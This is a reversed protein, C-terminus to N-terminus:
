DNVQEPYGYKACLAKRAAHMKSLLDEQGALSQITQHGIHVLLEPQLGPVQGIKLGARQARESLDVDECSLKFREDFLKGGDELAQLTATRAALLSGEIFRFKYWSMDQLGTLALDGDLTARIKDWWGHQYYVIDNNAFLIYPPPPDQATALSFGMNWARALSQARQYQHFQYGLFNPWKWMPAIRAFEGPTSDKSGNDIFILEWPESMTFILGEISQKTMDWLGRAVVIISVTPNM